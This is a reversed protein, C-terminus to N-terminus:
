DVECIQHYAINVMIYSRIYAVEAGQWKRQNLCFSLFGLYKFTPAIQAVYLSSLFMKDGGVATGALSSETKWSHTRFCMSFVPLKSLTHAFCIHYKVNFLFLTVLQWVLGM